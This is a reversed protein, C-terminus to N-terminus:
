QTFSLITHPRFKNEGKEGNNRSRFSLICSYILKDTFFGDTYPSSNKYYKKRVLRKVSITASWSSAKSDIEENSSLLYQVM